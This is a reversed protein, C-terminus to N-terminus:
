LLWVLRELWLKRYSNLHNICQSQLSCNKSRISKFISDRVGCVFRIMLSCPSLCGGKLGGLQNNNVGFSGKVELFIASYKTLSFPLLLPMEISVSAEDVELLPMEISVGTEGVEDAENTENAEDAENVEDSEASEDSEIAEEAVEAVNTL